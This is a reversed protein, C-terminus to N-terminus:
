DDTQVYVLLTGKEVGILARGCKTGANSVGLPFHHSLTLDDVEYDLGRLSVGRSHRSHSFVSVVQGATAPILLSDDTLTYLTFRRDILHLRCGKASWGGMLQLAALFHDERPGGTVGFLRFRRYGQRYGLKIALSLDTDNKRVPYRLLPVGAIPKPWSDMDGVVVDPRLKLARLAGYGGDAAILLDGKQPHLGRPSVDGAGVIYCTGRM